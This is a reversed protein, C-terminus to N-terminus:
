DEDGVESPSPARGLEIFAAYTRNRLAILDADIHGVLVAAPFQIVNQFFDSQAAAVRRTAPTSVVTPNANATAM